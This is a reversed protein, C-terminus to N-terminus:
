KPDGSAFEDALKYALEAARRPGRIGSVFVLAARAVMYAAVTSDNERVDAILNQVSRTIRAYATAPGNM